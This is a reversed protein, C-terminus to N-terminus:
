NYVATVRLDSTSEGLINITYDLITNRPVNFDSYGGKGLYVRYDMRRGYYDNWTGIVVYAAESPANRGNRQAEAMISPVNGQLNEPVYFEITFYRTGLNTRGPYSCTGQNPKLRNDGFLLVQGPNNYLCIRDIVTRADLGGGVSIRMRVKAVVRRLTVTQEDAGTRLVARASMILRGSETLRAETSTNAGLTEMTTRPLGGVNIGQNALVFFEYEGATLELQLRDTDTLYFHKSFGREINYIWVNLDDIRSEEKESLARTRPEEPVFAVRITRLPERGAEPEKSCGCLLLCFMPILLYHKM